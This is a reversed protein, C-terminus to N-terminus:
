LSPGRSYTIFFEVNDNYVTKQLYFLFVIHPHIFFSSTEYFNGTAYLIDWPMKYPLTKEVYYM